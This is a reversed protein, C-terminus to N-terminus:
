RRRIETHVGYEVPAFGRDIRIRASKTRSDYSLITFSGGFSEVTHPLSGRFLTQGNGFALLKGEEVIQLTTSMNGIIGVPGDFRIRAESEGPMRAIGLKRIPTPAIAVAVIAQRNSTDAVFAKDATGDSGSDIVCTQTQVHRLKRIADLDMGVEAIESMGVVRKKGTFRAPTCFLSDRLGVLEEATGSITSRILQEGSGITITQGLFAFTVDSELSAAQSRGLPQRYFVEGKRATVVSGAAVSGGDAMIMNPAQEVLVNLAAMLPLTLPILLLARLRRMHDPAM